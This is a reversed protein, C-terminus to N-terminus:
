ARIQQARSPAWRGGTTPAARAAPVDVFVQTVCVSEFTVTASTKQPHKRQLPQNKLKIGTVTTTGVSRTRRRECWVLAKNLLRARPRTHTRRRHPKHDSIDCQPAFWRSHSTSRKQQPRIEGTQANMHQPQAAFHADDQRSTWNRAPCLLARAGHPDIDTVAGFNFFLSEYTGEIM